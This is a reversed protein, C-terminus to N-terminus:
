TDNSLRMPMIVYLSKTTDLISGPNFSDSMAFDIVEDKCHRLIDLLFHPNLAIVKTDDKYDVPMHVKGEGIEHHNAELDLRGRDFTFRVAQSVDSTFLAIQKLLTVLEEKHLHIPQMKSRDPIVREYDPFQGAILKTVLTTVGSTLAVKDEMFSLTVSLDDDMIRIMEEVAKLPITSSIEEEPALEIAAQIKALRKGDTAVFTAERAKARVFIGNLAQRSDDKAAAFSSNTFLRKLQPAPFTLSLTESIEPFFPFESQNMGHLKFFSSGAHIVVVLEDTVEIMIDNSTLEKVLQFFRKAPLAIQGEREINAEVSTRVSVTLDTVYLTLTSGKAELLLNSLIPIVPKQPVVSAVKSILFVLADRSVTIKM